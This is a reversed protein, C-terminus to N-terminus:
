LCKSKNISKDFITDRWQQLITTVIESGYKLAYLRSSIDSNEM